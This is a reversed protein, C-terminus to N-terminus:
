LALSPGAGGAAPISRLRLALSYLQELIGREVQREGWVLALVRGSRVAVVSGDAHRDGEVVDVEVHRALFVQRRLRPVHPHEAANAALPRVVVGDVEGADIQVEAAPPGGRWHLPPRVFM